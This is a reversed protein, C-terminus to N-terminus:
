LNCALLKTKTQKKQAQKEKKKPPPAGDINLFLSWINKPAIVLTDKKDTM